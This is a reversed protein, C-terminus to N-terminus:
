TLHPATRAPQVFESRGGDRPSGGGAAGTLDIRPELLIAMQSAHRLNSGLERVKARDSIRSENLAVVQLSYGNVNRVLDILPKATARTEVVAPHNYYRRLRIWIPPTEIERMEGIATVTNEAFPEM